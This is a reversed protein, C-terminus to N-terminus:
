WNNLILTGPGLPESTAAATTQDLGAFSDVPDPTPDGATSWIVFLPHVVHVGTSAPTQLTLNELALASGVMSANFTLRAGTLNLDLNALDVANAGIVPVFPRVEPKVGADPAPPIVKNFLVIFDSLLASQ